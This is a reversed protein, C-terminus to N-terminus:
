VRGGLWKAIEIRLTHPLVGFRQLRICCKSSLCEVKPSLYSDKKRLTFRRKTVFCDDSQLRFFSKNAQTTAPLVYLNPGYTRWSVVPRSHVPIARDSGFYLCSQALWYCNGLAWSPGQSSVHNDKIQTSPKDKIKAM